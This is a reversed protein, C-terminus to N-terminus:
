FAKALGIQKGRKPFEQSTLMPLCFASYIKFLHWVMRSKKQSLPWQTCTHSFIGQKYFIESRTKRSNLVFRSTCFSRFPLVKHPWTVCPMRKKEPINARDARNARPIAWWDWVDVDSSFSLWPSNKWRKSPECSFQKPQHGVTLKKQATNLISHSAIKRTKVIHIVDFFM